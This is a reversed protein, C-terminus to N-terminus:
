GAGSAVRQLSWVLQRTYRVTAQLEMGGGPAEVIRQDLDLPTDRYNECLEMGARSNLFRLRLSILGTPFFALKSSELSEDLTPLRADVVEHARRAIHRIRDARFTQVSDLLRGRRTNVHKVALLWFFRGQKVLGIPHLRYPNERKERSSWYRMDLQEGRLLAENIEGLHTVDAEPAAVEPGEPIVRVRKRFSAQRWNSPPTLVREAAGFFGRIM